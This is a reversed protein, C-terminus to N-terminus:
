CLWPFHIFIARISISPKGFKFIPPDKWPLSNFLWITIPLGGFYQYLMFFNITPLSPVSGILILNTGSPYWHFRSEPQYTKEKMRPFFITWWVFVHTMLWFLWFYFIDVGFFSNFHSIQQAMPVGITDWVWYIWYVCVHGGWAVVKLTQSPSTLAVPRPTHILLLVPSVPCIPWGIQSQGSLPLVGFLQLLNGSPIDWLTSSCIGNCWM